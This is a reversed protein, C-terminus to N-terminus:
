SGGSKVKMAGTPCVNVCDMCVVCKDRFVAQIEYHMPDSEKLLEVKTPAVALVAQPCIQLCKKCEFPTLCKETDIKIQPMM